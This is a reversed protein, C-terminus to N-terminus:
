AGGQRDEHGARAPSAGARESGRTTRLDPAREATAYVTTDQCPRFEDVWGDLTLEWRRWMIRFGGYVTMPELVWDTKRLAIM